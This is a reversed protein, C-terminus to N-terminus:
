GLIVTPFVFVIKSFWGFIWLISAGIILPKNETKKIKAVIKSIAKVGILSYIGPYEERFNFVLAVFNVNSDSERM